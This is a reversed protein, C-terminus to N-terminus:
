RVLSLVLGAQGLHYTVIIALEAGSVPRVFRNWAIMADSCAFLAAGLGALLNGTAVATAVMLSIMAIYSVVPGRLAPEARLAGVVRFAVPGLVVAVGGLAVGFAWVAPGATWFGVIYALHAALFSGLGAVFLDRDDSDLMLFVDGALSLALAVVFWARRGPAGAAPDLVIAAVVLAALTAPKCVYELRRDDRVKASWDGVAFVAAAAFAVATVANM